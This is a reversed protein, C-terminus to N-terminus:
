PVLMIKGSVPDAVQEGRLFGTADLLKGDYPSRIWGAKGQVKTAYPIEAPKSPASPPPSPNSSPPPTPPPSPPTPKPDPTAGPNVASYGLAPGNPNQYGPPNNLPDPNTAIPEEPVGPGVPPRFGGRRYPSYEADEPACGQFLFLPLVAAIAAAQVSFLKKM